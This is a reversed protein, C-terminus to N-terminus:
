TWQINVNGNTSDISTIPQSVKAPASAALIQLTPSFSAAWGWKNASKIRFSYTTGQVIGSSLLYSTGTFDFGSGGIVDSFNGDGNHM